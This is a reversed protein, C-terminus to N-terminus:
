LCTHRLVEPNNASFPPQHISIFFRSLGDCGTNEPLSDVSYVCMHLREEGHKEGVCVCLSSHRNDGADM